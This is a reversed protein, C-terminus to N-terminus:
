IGALLNIIQRYIINKQDPNITLLNQLKMIERIQTELALLEYKRENIVELSEM